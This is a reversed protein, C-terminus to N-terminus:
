DVVANALHKELFERASDLHEIWAAELRDANGSGRLLHYLEAHEQYLDAGARYNTKLIALLLRTESTIGSFFQILRASGSAAVVASHFAVDAEAFQAWDDGDRIGAFALLAREVGDVPRRRAHIDRVADLEIMRRVRYLDRVQAPDFARVRASFGPPRVLMGENILQQVAVRATPRAIGFDAAVRTDKIEEGAAFEGAFLSERLRNTAAEAVSVTELPQQM